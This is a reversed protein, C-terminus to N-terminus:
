APADALEAVIFCGLIELMEWGNLQCRLLHVASKMKACFETGELGNPAGADPAGIQRGLRIRQQSRESLFILGPRKEPISPALRPQLVCNDQGHSAQTFLRTDGSRGIVIAMGKSGVGESGTYWVRLHSFQEYM